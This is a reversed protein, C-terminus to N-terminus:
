QGVLGLPRTLRRLRDDEQPEVAARALEFREVRVGVLLDGTAGPRDRGSDRADLERLPVLLEGVLHFRDRQDSRHDALLTVVLAPRIEHLRAIPGVRRDLMGRDARDTAVLQGDAPGVNGPVNRDQGLFPRAPAPKQSAFEVRELDAVRLPLQGVHNRSQRCRALLSPQPVQVDDLPRERAPAPPRTSVVKCRSVSARARTM